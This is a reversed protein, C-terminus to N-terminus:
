SASSCCTTSSRTWTRSASCSLGGPLGRRLRPGPGGARRERAGLPHLRRRDPLLGRLGHQLHRRARARAARRLGDAERPSGACPDRRRSGRPSGARAGGRAPVGRHHQGAPVPYAPLMSAGLKIELSCRKAIEVRTPSCSRACRRLARADGGADEPVAGRLLAAPPQCRRAARGRPHLGAGRAGRVGRADPLARRQHRGRARGHERALDLVAESYAAEGARGTRQM